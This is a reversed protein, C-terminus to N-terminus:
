LKNLEFGQLYLRSGASGSLWYITDATLVELGFWLTCNNDAGIKNPAPTVATAVSSDNTVAHGTANDSAVAGYAFTSLLPPVFGANTDMNAPTLDVATWAGSTDGSAITAWVTFFYKKGTQTFNIFNSSNNNGVCSVLALQDYGSDLQALVTAFVASTSLFGNVTGDASKRAIWIYYITNAAESLAAVLGSAGSTTIAIAESVSRIIVKNNSTDELVLEDATVTVVTTSTRVVM